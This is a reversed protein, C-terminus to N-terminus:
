CLKLATPLRNQEAVASLSVRNIPVNVANLIKQSPQEDVTVFATRLSEHRRVIESFSQAVAVENLRGTLRLAIPINYFASNPELQDLFWLRQQAFSLPNLDTHPRPKIAAHNSKGVQALAAIIEPKRETLQSRLEATLTNPPAKCKLNDGEVYLHINLSGLTTLLETLSM